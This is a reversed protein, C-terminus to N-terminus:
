LINADLGDLVHTLSSVIEHLQGFNGDLANTLIDNLNSLAEVYDRYVNLLPALGKEHQEFFESYEELSLLDDPSIVAERLQHHTNAVNKYADLIGIEAQQAMIFPIRTNESQGVWLLFGREPQTTIFEAEERMIQEVLERCAQIEESLPRPEPEDIRIDLGQAFQHASESHGLRSSSSNSLIDEPIPGSPKATSVLNAQAFAEAMWDNHQYGHGMHSALMDSSDNSTPSIFNGNEITRDLTSDDEEAAVIDFSQERPAYFPEDSFYTTHSKDSHVSM